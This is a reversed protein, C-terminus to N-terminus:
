FNDHTCVHVICSVHGGGGELERDSCKSSKRTYNKDQDNLNSYVFKLAIKLSLDAGGWGGGGLM